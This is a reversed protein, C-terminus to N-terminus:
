SSSPNCAGSLKTKTLIPWISPSLRIFVVNIVHHCLARHSDKWLPLKLLPRNLIRDYDEGFGFEFNYFIVMCSKERSNFSSINM